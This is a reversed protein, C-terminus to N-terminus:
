ARLFALTHALTDGYVGDGADLTVQTDVTFDFAPTTVLAQDDPVMHRPISSITLPLSGRSAQIITCRMQPTHVEM